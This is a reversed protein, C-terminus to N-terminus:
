KAESQRGVMFLILGLIGLVSWVAVADSKLIGILIAAVILVTGILKM